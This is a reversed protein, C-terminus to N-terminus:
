KLKVKFFEKGKPPQAIGIKNGDADKKIVIEPKADPDVKEALLYLEDYDAYYCSEIEGTFITKEVSAGGLMRYTNGKDDALSFILDADFQKEMVVKVEAATPYIELSEITVLGAETEVEINSFKIPKIDHNLSISM